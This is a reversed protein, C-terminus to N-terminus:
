IKKVEFVVQEKRFGATVTDGEKVRGELIEEALRDEVVSQIARRLPRAGMKEDSYKTLIYEKLANFIM